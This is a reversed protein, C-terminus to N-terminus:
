ATLWCADAIAMAQEIGRYPDAAVDLAAQWPNVVPLGQVRTAGCLTAKPRATTLLWFRADREPVVRLKWADLFASQPGGTVITLPKTRADQLILARHRRCAEWGTIAWPPVDPSAHLLYATGAAAVEKLPQYLPAVATPRADVHRQQDLWRQVVAPIDVLHPVTSRRHDIWGRERLSAIAHYIASPSAQLAAALAPLTPADVISGWAHPFRQTRVQRGLLVHLVALTIESRWPDRPGPSSGPGGLAAPSKGDDRRAETRLSPLHLDFGGRDSLVIWDGTRAGVLQRLDERVRTLGQPLSPVRVVMVRSRGPDTHSRLGHLVLIELLREAWPQASRSVLAYDRHRHRLRDGDLRAKVGLDRLVEELRLLTSASPATM